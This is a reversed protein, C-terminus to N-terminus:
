EMEKTSKAALEDLSTNFAEKLYEDIYPWVPHEDTIQLEKALRVVDGGVLAVAILALFADKTKVELIREAFKVPTISM